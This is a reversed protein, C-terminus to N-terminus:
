AAEKQKIIQALEACIALAQEMTIKDKFTTVGYKKLWAKKDGGSDEIDRYIAKAVTYDCMLPDRESSRGAEHSGQIRKEKTAEMTTIITAADEATLEAISEVHYSRLAKMVSEPSFRLYEILRGIQDLQKTTAYEIPKAERTLAEGYLNSFVEFSTEFSDPLKPKGPTVRQKITKCTYEGKYEELRVVTDFVYGLGKEGDFTVGIKRLVGQDAYLNKQHATLIVNMDLSTLLRMLKKWPRKLPTWDNPQTYYGSDKYGANRKEPKLVAEEEHRQDAFEQQLSEWPITIPDIVLTRYPHKNEALWEVSAVVSRFDTVHNVHFQYDGGYPTTSKECDIVTVGNAQLALLTKGSGEPGFIFMKLRKPSESAPKFPNENM